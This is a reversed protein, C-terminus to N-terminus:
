KGGETLGGQDRILRKKYLQHHCMAVIRYCLKFKTLSVAINALNENMTNERSTAPNEDSKQIINKLSHFLSSIRASNRIALQKISEREELGGEAICLDELVCADDRIEGSNICLKQLLNKNTGPDKENVNEPQLEEEEVFFDKSKLARDEDTDEANEYTNNDELETDNNDFERHNLHCNQDNCL